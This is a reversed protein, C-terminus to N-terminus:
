LYRYIDISVCVSIVFLTYMKCYLIRRNNTGREKKGERIQQERQEETEVQLALLRGVKHNKEESLALAAETMHLRSLIMDNTHADKKKQM